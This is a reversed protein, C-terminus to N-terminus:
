EKTMAVNNAHIIIQSNTKNKLVFKLTSSSFACSGRAIEVGNNDLISVVSGASFDGDVKTVGCSLLSKRGYLAVKAGDDIFIKGSVNACFQLWCKKLSLPKNSATFLTGTYNGLVNESLCDIKTANTIVMPIGASTSIQAARVKTWMGGTGFEGSDGRSLDIIDDTIQDVVPILKADPNENPNATFLGDVDSVLILLNSETVLASMSSLTDNDGVKIESVAVADNENIIPVVGYDFLADLTTKLNNIRTRNGFDDHSLLIQACKIDFDEFIQEYVQMLSMQGIAALAQKKNTASPKKKLKMKKVGIAIAGSSVLCVDYGLSKIKAVQEVLKRIQVTNIKGASDIFFSSGVKITIRMLKEGFVNISLIIVSLRM